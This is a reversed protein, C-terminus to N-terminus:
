CSYIDDLTNIIMYKARPTLGDLCALGFEHGCGVHNILTEMILGPWPINRCFMTKAISECHVCIKARYFTGDFLAKLTIYREKKDIPIKCESCYHTKRATVTKEEYLYVREVCDVSDLICSM